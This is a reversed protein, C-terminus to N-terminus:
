PRYGLKSSITRTCKLIAEQVEKVQSEPFRYVPVAIGLGGVVKGSSDFIPAAVCRGGPNLEQDSYCFGNRRVQELAKKLKVPDIITAPTIKELGKAIVKEQEKKPLYAMLVRGIASAHLPFLDGRDVIFRISNKTCEIREICVAHGGRVATLFVTENTQRALNTMFPKAIERLPDGDIANAALRLLIPGVSYKKVSADYGLFSEACLDKVYRYASSKPMGLAQSIEDVDLKASRSFLSLIQATKRISNIKKSTM